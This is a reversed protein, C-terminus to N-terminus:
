ACHRAKEAALLRNYHDFAVAIKDAANKSAEMADLKDKQDDMNEIAESLPRLDEETLPPLSDNLIEHIVTPKYDKSLKPSRLQVLLDIMDSYEGPSSFGFVARNVAQMYEKQSDFVQGASGAQTRLESKTLCAGDKVLRFNDGIVMGGGLIFYWSDVGQKKRARAGMGIALKQAGKVFEIFLYGTREDDPSDEELLYNELRRDKGGFPDLRHPSKNGDLLLPIFLQMTVSKGSGNAGRLLLRGNQFMYDQSDYYWFNVMGFRNIVWTDNNNM